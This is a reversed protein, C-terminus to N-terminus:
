VQKFCAVVNQLHARDDAVSPQLHDAQLSHADTSEPHRPAQPKALKHWELLLLDATYTVSSRLVIHSM